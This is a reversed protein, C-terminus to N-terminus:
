QIVLKHTYKEKGVVSTIFYVGKNLESTNLKIANLGTAFAQKTQTMVAQGLMNAVTVTINQATLLDYSITVQTNAPNPYVTIASVALPQPDNIGILLSVPVCDHIIDTIQYPHSAQNNADPAQVAIGPLVDQSWILDVCNSQVNRPISPFVGEDFDSNSVNMPTNWNAGGDISAMLFVNRYSFDWPAPSGSSTNEMCTVYCVYINGAADIGAQAQTTLSGNGYRTVGDGAFTISGDNDRDPVEAIIVPPNTGMSENWYMLGDTGLFVNFTTVGPTADSDIMRIRGAWTHIMGNQDVLVAIRGDSVTITDALGDMDVDTINGDPNYAPFPFAMVVTRTFTTGNDTSKWIAWDNSAGGAGIAVTAGSADIAYADANMSFYQTSDIGPLAGHLVNWTAGEDESRSYRLQGNIGQSITGGNATPASIAIAHLSNNTAGGAAMRPWLFFNGSALGPIKSQSWAGSGTTPRYAYLLSDTGSIHTIVHEKGSSTQAISPWGNRVTEVRATPSAAWSGGTNYNYGTGRDPAALNSTMSFTWTGALNGNKNVLRNCNAANTQLDYTTSGIISQTGSLKAQSANVTQNLDKVLFTENGTFNENNLVSPQNSYNKGENLPKGSTRNQATAGFCFALTAISLLLKKM